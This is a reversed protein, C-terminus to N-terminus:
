STPEPDTMTSVALTQWACLSIKLVTIRLCCIYFHVFLLVFLSWDCVRVCGQHFHLQKLQHSQKGLDLWETVATQICHLFSMRDNEKTGEKTGGARKWKQRVKSTSARLISLLPDESFRLEAESCLLSICSHSRGHWFQM